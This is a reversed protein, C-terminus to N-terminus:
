FFWTMYLTKCTPLYKRINRLSKRIGDEPFDVHDEQVIKSITAALEVVTGNLVRLRFTEVAWFVATIVEFIARVVTGKKM